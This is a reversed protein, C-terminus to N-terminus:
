NSITTKLEVNDSGIVLNKIAKNSELQKRVTELAEDVLGSFYEFSVIQALWPFKSVFLDYVYRLKLIGTKSGLAKEAEICAYVLWQKVAEIQQKTPLKLFKISVYIFTGLLAIFGIIIYWNNIIWNM